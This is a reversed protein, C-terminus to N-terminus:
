NCTRWVETDRDAKDDNDSGSDEVNFAVRQLVRLQRRLTAVDEKQPRETLEQRVRGLAERERQLQQQAERLTAELRQKDTRSNEEKKRIEIRLEVVVAQLTRAEELAAATGIGGGSGTTNNAGAIGASHAGQASSLAVRLVEIESEAEAVRARDRESGESMIASEALLASIRGEAQTLVEFVQSQARDAATQAQRMAEVAASLRKEAARQLDKAETIRGAALEEAEATRKAVEESVKDEIQERYEDLQDELRRITIDQNKLQQFEEDYQALEARLREIELQHSSKSAVMSVLGDLAPSPDPAEFLVKHLSSFSAESFKSRRSLQDIEEQYAKLLETVMGLQDEKTKSRFLKTIENLRKRGNISAAKSDRMELIDKESAARRAEIDFERWFELCSTAEALWDMGGDRGGGLDESIM